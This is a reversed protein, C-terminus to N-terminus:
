VNGDLGIVMAVAMAAVQILEDRLNEKSGEDYTLARAVEGVEEALIIYSDRIDKTKNMPTGDFTHKVIARELEGEVQDFVGAKFDVGWLERHLRTLVGDPWDSPSLTTM